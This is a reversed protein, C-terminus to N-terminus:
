SLCQYMRSLRTADGESLKKLGIIDIYNRDHPIITDQGNMSFSKRAYHMISLLDYSTGFNDYLKPNVKSFAKHDVPRINKWVIKVYDDRDVHNHMHNYGLAHIVEHSTIGKELCGCSRCLSLEQRGGIKGLWSWCDDGDIIEIFDKQYTREVFRICTKNELLRFEGIM